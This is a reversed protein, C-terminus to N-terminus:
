QFHENVMMSQRYTPWPAQGCLWSPWRTLLVLLIPCDFSVTKVPKAQEQLQCLHLFPYQGGGGGGSGQHKLGSSPSFPVCICPWFTPVFSSSPSLSEWHNFVYLLKGDGSICSHGWAKRTACFCSFSKPFTSSICLYRLGSLSGLRFLKPKM